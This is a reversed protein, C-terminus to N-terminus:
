ESQRGVRVIVLLATVIGLLMVEEMGLFMVVLHIVLSLLLLILM